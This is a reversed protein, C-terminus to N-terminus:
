KVSKKRHAKRAQSRDVRMRDLLDDLIGPAIKEPGTWPKTKEEEPRRDFFREILQLFKKHTIARDLKTKATERFYKLAPSNAESDGIALDEREGLARTAEEPFAEFEKESPSLSAFEKAYATAKLYLANAKQLAQEEDDGLAVFHAAIVALTQADCNKTKTMGREKERDNHGRETSQSAFNFVLDV